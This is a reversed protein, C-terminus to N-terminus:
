LDSIKAVPVERGGSRDRLVVDPDPKGPGLFGSFRKKGNISLIAGKSTDVAELSLNQPYSRYM